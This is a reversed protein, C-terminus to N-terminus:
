YITWYANLYTELQGRETGNLARNYIVVEAFDGATPEIGDGRAGIGLANANSPLNGAPTARTAVQTANRYIWLNSADTLFEVLYWTGAVVVGNASSQANPQDVTLAGAASSYLSYAGNKSVFLPTNALSTPKLAAAITITTPSLGANSVAALFASVGDLRIVPRGNQIALKLTGRKGAVAQLANNGLGSLDDWAGVPDGDAVAPTARASTQWKTGDARYWAILGTLNGPSFAPPAAGRKKQFYVALANNRQLFRQRVRAVASLRV